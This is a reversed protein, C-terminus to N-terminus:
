LEKYRTARPPDPPSCLRGHFGESTSLHSLSPHLYAAYMEQELKRLSLKAADAFKESKNNKIKNPEKDPM